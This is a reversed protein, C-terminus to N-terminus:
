LPPNKPAHHTPRFVAGAIKAGLCHPGAWILHYLLGGRSNFVAPAPSVYGFAAKLQARYLELLRPEADARKRRTGGFMDGHAEYAEDLWADTGFLRTLAEAWGPRFEGSHPLLRRVSMGLPFNIIVECRRSSGLAAVTPWAVDMGYPDLFVVARCSSQALEREALRALEENADGQRIAIDRSAGYRAALQQLAAVRDPDREIFVYHRFPSDLDLAVQPSGALLAAVREQAAFLPAEPLRLRAM